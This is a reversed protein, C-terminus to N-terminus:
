SWLEHKISTCLESIKELTYLMFNLEAKREDIYQMKIKCFM